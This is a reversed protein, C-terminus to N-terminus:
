TNFFTLAKKIASDSVYKFLQGFHKQRDVNPKQMNSLFYDSVTTERKDVYCFMNEKCLPLRSNKNHTIVDVLPVKKLTLLLAVAARHSGDWVHYIGGLNQAKLPTLIGDKSISQKLAQLKEWNQHSFGLEVAAREFNLYNKKDGAKLCYAKLLIDHRHLYSIDKYNINRVRRGQFFASGTISLADEM